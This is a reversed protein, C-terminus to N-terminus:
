VMFFKESDSLSSTRFINNFFESEEEQRFFIAIPDCTEPCQQEEVLNLNTAALVSSVDIEGLSNVDTSASAIFGSQENVEFTIRHKKLYTYYRNKVQMETRGEMSKSIKRWQPGIEKMMKLIFRDEEVTWGAKKINSALVNLYRDRVQKGNRNPINESIKTWKPGYIGYFERIKEDEVTTWTSRKHAVKSGSEKKCETAQNSNTPMKSIKKSIPILPTAKTNSSVTEASDLDEFVNLSGMSASPFCNQEFSQLGYDDATSNLGTNTSPSLSLDNKSTCDYFPSLESEFCAEFLCSNESIISPYNNDMNFTM